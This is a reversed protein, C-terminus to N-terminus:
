ATRGLSGIGQSRIVDSTVDFPFAAAFQQRSAPSAPATPAPAQPMPMPAQAVPPPAVPPSPPEVRAQNNRQDFAELGSAGRTRLREQRERVEEPRLGSLVGFYENFEMQAPLLGAGYLWSYVPRLTNRSIDEDRGIKLLAGALEPDKLAALLLDRETLRALALREGGVNAGIASIALSASSGFIRDFGPISRIWRYVGSASAAGLVRGLTEEVRRRGEEFMEEDPLIEQGRRGVMTADLNNKMERLLTNITALHGRGDLIGEEILIDGVSMNTGTTMDDNLYKLMADPNFNIRGTSAAPAGTGGAYSFAGDLVTNLFGQEVEEGGQKATRALSALERVPNGIRERSPGPDGIVERLGKIPNGFVGSFARYFADNQERTQIALANENILNNNLTNLIDIDLLDAKLDPFYNDLVNSVEESNIFDYFEQTPVLRQPVARVDQGTEPDRVIPVSGTADVYDQRTFFKPERLIGRLLRESASLVDKKEQQTIDEINEREYVLVGSRGPELIGMQQTQVDFKEATELSLKQDLLFDAANDLQQLRVMTASDLTKFLMQGALEPSVEAAMEGLLTGSFLENVGRRFDLYDNYMKFTNFGEKRDAKAISTLELSKLGGQELHNLISLLDNNGSAMANKKAQDLQSLFNLIMGTTIPEDDGPKTVPLTGQEVTNQARLLENEAKRLDLELRQKQEPTGQFGGEPNLRSKLDNVTLQKEEVRIKAADLDIPGLSPVDGKTKGVIEQLDKLVGDLYLIDRGSSIRPTRAGVGYARVVEEYARVIGNELNVPAVPDAKPIIDKLAAEQRRLRGLVGGSGDEGFFVKYLERSSNFTEGSGLASEMLRQNEFLADQMERALVSRFYETRLAEYEALAEPNDSKILQQMYALLADKQQDYRRRIEPDEGFGRGQSGRSELAYLIPLGTQMALTRDEFDILPREVYYSNTDADFIAGPEDASAPMRTAKEYENVFNRTFTEETLGEPFDLVYYEQTGEDFFADPTSDLDAPDVRRMEIGMMSRLAEGVNQERGRGTFARGYRGLSPLRNFVFRGLRGFPDIFAASVEGATSIVDRQGPSFKPGLMAETAGVAGIGYALDRGESLGFLLPRRRAFDFGQELSEEVARVATPARTGLFSPLNQANRLLFDSGLSVTRGKMLWPLSFMAPGAGLVDGMREPTQGKYQGTLPDFRPAFPINTEPFVYSRLTDIAAGTGLATGLGTVFGVIPRGTMATVQQGTKFGAATSPIATAAARTASELFRRADSVNRVNAFTALIQDDSHSKRLERLFNETAYAEQRVGNADTYYPSDAEPYYVFQNLVIEDVLQKANLNKYDNPDIEVKQDPRLEPLEGSTVGLIDAFSVGITEDAM